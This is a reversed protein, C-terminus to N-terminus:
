FGLSDYTSTGDEFLLESHCWVYWSCFAGGFDV